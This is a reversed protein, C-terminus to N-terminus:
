IIGFAQSDCKTLNQPGCHFNPQLMYYTPRICAQLIETISEMGIEYRGQYTKDLCELKRRSALLRVGEM